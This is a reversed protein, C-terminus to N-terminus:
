VDYKILRKGFPFLGAAFRILLWGSVIYWSADRFLSSYTHSMGELLATLDLCFQFWGIFAIFYGVMWAFVRLVILVDQILRRAASEGMLSGAGEWVSV